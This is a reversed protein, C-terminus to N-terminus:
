VSTFSYHPDFISDRPTYIVSCLMRTLSIIPLPVLVGSPDLARSEISIPARHVAREGVSLGPGTSAKMERKTERELHPCWMAEKLIQRVNGQGPGEDSSGRQERKLGKNLWLRLSPGRHARMAAFLELSM